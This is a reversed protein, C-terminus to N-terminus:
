AGEQGQKVGFGRGAAKDLVAREIKDAVKEPPAAAEECRVNVLLGKQEYFDILPKTKERYVRLREKVVDPKDDERKYLPGGCKDCVGPRKPKLTKENYIAGCNRCILRSSLRDVIIEDPVDLNVVADVNAMGELAEAQRLTRPFGDLIFGKSCDPKSIRKKLLELIMEDPVLEGRRNYEEIMRGVKTGAKIEERVLDGTSVHPIGLRGTLISAYTGKGSGPPGLLVLIM